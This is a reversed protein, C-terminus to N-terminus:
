RGERNSVSVNFGCWLREEGSLGVGIRWQYLFTMEIKIVRWM